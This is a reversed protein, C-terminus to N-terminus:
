RSIAKVPLPSPHPYGSERPFRGALRQHAARALGRHEIAFRVGQCRSDRRRRSPAHHRNRQDVDVCTCGLEELQAAQTEIANILQALLSRDTM